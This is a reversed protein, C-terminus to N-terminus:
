KLLWHQRSRRKSARRTCCAPTWAWYHSLLRDCLQFMWIVICSCGAPGRCVRYGCVAPSYLLPTLPASPGMVSLCHTHVSAHTLTHTRLFGLIHSSSLKVYGLLSVLETSDIRVQQQGRNRFENRICWKRHLHWHFIKRLQLFCRPWPFLFRAPIVCVPPGYSAPVVPACTVEMDCKGRVRRWWECGDDHRGWGDRSAKSGLYM